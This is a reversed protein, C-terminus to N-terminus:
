TPTEPWLARGMFVGAHCRTSDHRGFFARM